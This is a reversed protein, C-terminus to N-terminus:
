APTRNEALSARQCLGNGHVAFRLAAYLRTLIQRDVPSPRRAVRNLRLEIHRRLRELGREGRADRDPVNNGAALVLGIWTEEDSLAFEGFDFLRNFLVM